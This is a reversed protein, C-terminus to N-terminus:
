DEDENDLEVPSTTLWVLATASEVATKGLKLTGLRLTNETEATFVDLKNGDAVTEKCVDGAGLKLETLTPTLDEFDVAKPSSDLKM